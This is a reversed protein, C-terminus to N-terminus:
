WPRDSWDVVIAAIVNSEALRALRERDDDPDASWEVAIGGGLFAVHCLFGKSDRLVIKECPIDLHLSVVESVHDDSM